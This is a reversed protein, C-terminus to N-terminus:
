AAAPAVQARAGRREIDPLLATVLGILPLFACLQYVYALGQLDALKGLAAAGIGGMGFSFGFFLGSVLGIRGPILEQGLVLIASFASAMVLGIVVVLVCTWLLDAYPLALTFPASGVISGWIVRRRGFRDGVWGGIVAGSATAFLYLFLVMQAGQVSLHFREILYFTLYSSLSAQYINKSFLIVFLLALLWAVKATSFAPHSSRPRIGAAISRAHQRAYWGGVRFLVGIALMALVSFWAVSSQGNPLIVWAAILPGVAAGANGGVQFISQALGHRGGSAMRAVRSSEPHFVSSGIGVMAAAILIAGFDAAVSLALMGLLTFGMGIALSYPKPHRDLYAGVAPQLLSATVQFTLTILGIQVFTLQLNDKILPYLAILLSQIMDNLFHSFSIAGLVKFATEKHAPAAANQVSAQMHTGNSNM